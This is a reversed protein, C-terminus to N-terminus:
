RNFVGKALNVVHSRVTASDSIGTIMTAVFEYVVSGKRVVLYEQTDGFTLSNRFVADDGVGPEETVIWMAMNAANTTKRFYVMATTAVAETPFSSVVVSFVWPKVSTIEQFKCGSSAVASDYVSSELHSFVEADGFTAGFEAGIQGKTLVSCAAVASAQSPQSTAVAQSQQSSAVAQTSATGSCGFVAAAAAVAAIAAIAYIARRSM